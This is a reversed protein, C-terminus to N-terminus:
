VSEALKSAADAANALSSRVVAAARPDAPQDALSRLQTAVHTALQALVKTKRGLATEPDTSAVVQALKEAEMALEQAHTRAMASTMQGDAVGDALLVGDTAISALSDADKEFRYPTMAGGRCGLAALAVTLLLATWASARFFRRRRM